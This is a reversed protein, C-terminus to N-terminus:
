RVIVLRRTLHRGAFALRAVYVGAPLLNRAEDRGEFEVTHPGESMTGSALRSVRRGTVDFLDIAVSGREPLTFSLQGRTQLPNPHTGQFVLSWAPEAGIGTLNDPSVSICIHDVGTENGIVVELDGDALYSLINTLPFSSPLSALNLTFTADQNHAWTGSAGPLDKLMSGTLFTSGEFFGIFDTATQGSPGAKARFQLAASAIGGGPVPFQLRHVLFAKPVTGGGSQPCGPRGPTEDFELFGFCTSGSYQTTLLSVVASDRVALERPCAYNDAAGGCFTPVIATNTPEAHLSDQMVCPVMGLVFALVTAAICKSCSHSHVQMDELRTTM